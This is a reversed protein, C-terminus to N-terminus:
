ISIATPEVGMEFETVVDFGTGFQNANVQVLNFQTLNPQIAQILNSQISNFQISNFQVPNFQVKISNVSDFEISIATPEVGM